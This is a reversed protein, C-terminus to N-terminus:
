WHGVSAGRRMECLRARDRARSEGSAAAPSGHGRGQGDLEGSVAGLRGSSRGSTLCEDRHGIERITCKNM